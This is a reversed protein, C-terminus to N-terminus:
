IKHDFRCIDYIRFWALPILAFNPILCKILILTHSAMLLNNRNNQYYSNLTISPAQEYFHIFGVDM